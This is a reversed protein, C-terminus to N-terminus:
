RLVERLADVLPYPLRHYFRKHHQPHAVEVSAPVGLERLTAAAVAGLAVRVEPGHNLARELGARDSANVWLLDRERAGAAALQEALWVSCGGRSFSVFPLQLLPDHDKREAPAEGVLLARAGYSGATAHAVPHPQSGVFREPLELAPETTYDYRVVPLDWSRAAYAAHVRALQEDSTLYEAERRRRFVALCAELPPLCLVLTTACRLAVRDLLRAGAVEVLRDAGGRLEDAYPAESHWSRDLVVDQHGLLAPLLAEHYLRALGRGVRPAAPVKVYRARLRTALALAATTKGGGDPGEFVALRSSVANSRM